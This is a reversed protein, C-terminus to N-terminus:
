RNAGSAQLALLGRKLVLIRTLEKLTSNNEAMIRICDEHMDNTKSVLNLIKVQDAPTSRALLAKIQDAESPPAKKAAKTAVAKKAAPRAPASKRAPPTTSKM